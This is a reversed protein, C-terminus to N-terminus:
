KAEEWGKPMPAGIALNYKQSTGAKRIQRPTGASGSPGTAPSATAVPKAIAQLSLSQGAPDGFIGPGWGPSIKAEFGLPNILANIDAPTAGNKQADTMLKQAKVANALSSDKKEAGSRFQERLGETFTALEKANDMKTNVKPLQPFRSAVITQILEPPLGSKHLMAVFDAMDGVTGGAFPQARAKQEQDFAAQEGPKRLIGGGPMGGQPIIDSSRTPGSYGAQGGTYSLGSPQEPAYGLGRDMQANRLSQMLQAAPDPSQSPQPVANPQSSFQALLQQLVEPSLQDQNSQDENSAFSMEDM